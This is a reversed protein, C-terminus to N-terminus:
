GALARLPAEIGKLVDHVRELLLGFGFWVPAYDLRIVGAVHLRAYSYDWPCRGTIVRLLVGSVAEVGFIGLMYVAGRWPWWWGRIADHAPEFLFVASGYIPLMWLYTHGQLRLREARSLPELRRPDDAAPRTGAIAESAATWVIEACWGILGYLLFRLLM